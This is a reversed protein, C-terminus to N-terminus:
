LKGEGRSILLANAVIIDEPTTIKINAHDGPSAHVVMGIREAAACDDTLEAGESIAKTLAGKILEIDFVQPTQVSFLKSRDPTATIVDADLVKITDKVPVCPAAAGTKYALTIAGKIVDETVLPRAGDHIAVFKSLGSVEYIGNMVSETRNKGGRVIKVAKKIDYEKCMDAIEIIDEERASVIIEDILACNQFAELTHAIVPVGCIRLFLKNEGQMRSSSGGAAIVASTFPHGKDSSFLNKGLKLIDM